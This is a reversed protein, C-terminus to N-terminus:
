SRHKLMYIKNGLPNFWLNTMFGHILKLGRGSCRNLNETLNPDPVNLPSFGEGEDEISCFFFGETINSEVHIHKSEDRQNGHEIANVTAEAMALNVAFVDRDTWRKKTMEDTVQTIFENASSLTSPITGVCKWSEQELPESAEEETKPANFFMTQTDFHKTDPFGLFLDPKAGCVPCSIRSWEHLYGCLACVYWQKRDSKWYDKSESLEKLFKYHSESGKLAASLSLVASSCKANEAYKLFPPYSRMDEEEERMMETIMDPVGKSPCQVIEMELKIGLFLAAKAHRSSHVLESHSCAFFFNALEQYGESMAKQAYFGYKGCSSCERRFSLTLSDILQHDESAFLPNSSCDSM